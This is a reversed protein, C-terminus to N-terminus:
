EEKSYINFIKSKIKSDMLDSIEVNGAFIGTIDNLMGFEDIELEVLLKVGKETHNVHIYKM